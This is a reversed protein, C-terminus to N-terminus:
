GKALELLTAWFLLAMACGFWWRATAWEFRQLRDRQLARIAEHIKLRDDAERISEIRSFLDAFAEAEDPELKFSATMGMKAAVRLRDAIPLRQAM